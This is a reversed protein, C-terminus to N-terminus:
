TSATNDIGDLPIDVEPEILTPPDIEHVESISVPDMLQVVRLQEPTVSVPDKLQVVMLQEPTVSVPLM